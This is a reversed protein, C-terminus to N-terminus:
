FVFQSSKKLEEQRTEYSFGEEELELWEL